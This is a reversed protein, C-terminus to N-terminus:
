FYNDFGISIPPVRRTGRQLLIASGCPSVSAFFGELVDVFDHLHDDIFQAFVANGNGVPWLVFYLYKWVFADGDGNSAILMSYEPKVAQSGAFIIEARM